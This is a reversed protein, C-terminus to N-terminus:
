RAWSPQQSEWRGPQWVYRVGDWHWSGPVWEADESPKPPAVEAEPPPPGPAFLESATREDSPRPPTSQSEARTPRTERGIVCGQLLVVAAVSLVRNM